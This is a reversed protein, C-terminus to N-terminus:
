AAHLRQPAGARHRRADRHAHRDPQGQRPDLQRRRARHRAALRETNTVFLDDGVLQVRDGLADTLAGLRGLRGRGATRSRSSRTPTSWGAYYDIMEERRALAPAARRSVHLRATRTSSARPSTSRSRSTRARRTAPRSSPRSSSTSRTRTREAPRARLRGRRRRRHRAAGELVKKLAHYVEAGLAAGRLVDRAGIPAVMFEQFDVNNDAHAGGNLINMMPVPLLARTRAASTATCRCGARRRRRAGRGALRRPDRQRRAAKNPTGDLDLLPQDVGIQDDRRHRAAGPRDARRRERRGQARGQRRLPKKDGDRLEVAEHEGTSAGSPV